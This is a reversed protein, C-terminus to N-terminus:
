LCHGEFGFRPQVDCRHATGLQIQDVRQIQIDHLTIEIFEALHNFPRLQKGVALQLEPICM